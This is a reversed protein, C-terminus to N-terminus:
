FLAVPRSFTRGDVRIEVVYGGRPVRAVPMQLTQSGPPAQVSAWARGQLDRLILRAPQAFNSQFILNGDRRQLKFDRIRDQAPSKVEGLSTPIPTFATDTSHYNLTYWAAIRSPAQGPSVPEGWPKSGDASLINIGKILVVRNNGSGSTPPAADPRVSAAPMSSLVLFVRTSDPSIVVGAPTISTLGQQAGSGYQQVGMKNTWTQMTYNSVEGASPGVKKTFQLEFGNVRARVALLEFM